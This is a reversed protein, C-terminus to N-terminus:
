IAAKDYKDEEFNDTNGFLPENFSPDQFDVFNFPDLLQSHKCARWWHQINAAAIEKEYDDYANSKDASITNEVDNSQALVTTSQREKFNADEIVEFDSISEENIKDHVFIADNEFWFANECFNGKYPQSEDITKVDGESFFLWNEGRSVFPHDSNAFTGTKNKQMEDNSSSKTSFMLSLKTLYLEQRLSVYNRVQVSIPLAALIPDDEECFNNSKLFKSISDDSRTKLFEEYYFILIEEIFADILEIAKGAGHNEEVILLNSRLSIMKQGVLPEKIHLPHNSYIHAESALQYGLFKTFHILNQTNLGQIVRLQPDDLDPFIDHLIQSNGKGSDELIVCQWSKAGELLSRLEM